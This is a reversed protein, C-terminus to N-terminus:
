PWMGEVLVQVEAQTAEAAWPMSVEAWYIEGDQEREFVFMDTRDRINRDMGLLKWTNTRAITQAQPLLTIPLAAIAAAALMGKLFARRKM